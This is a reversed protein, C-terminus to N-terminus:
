GIDYKLPNLCSVERFKWYEKVDEGHPFFFAFVDANSARLKVRIVQRVLKEMDPSGKWEVKAATSDGTFPIHENYSFGELARGETDCIEIGVFGKSADANIYLEGNEVAFPRTMLECEDQGAHLYVFGDPRLMALGISEKSIEEYPIRAFGSHDFPAASYYIKMGDQRYIVTSSPMICTSDWEEKTGLGILKQGQMCRHWCFGDHSYALQIDMTGAMKNFHPDTLYDFTDYMSILGMTYPGYPTMQMGYFQTFCPDLQDPEIALVPKTWHLLDFSEAVWVRRDPCRMRFSLRYAGSVSDRYFGIHCDSEVELVAKNSIPKWHIGDPSAYLYISCHESYPSMALKFRKDPDKEETDLIISPGHTRADNDLVINTGPVVSLEPKIFNIGDSSYAYNLYSYARSDSEGFAPGYYHSSYWTKYLQEEEDYLATGYYHARKFENPLEPKLVPNGSYKQAKGLERRFVQIYEYTRNDFFTFKVNRSVAEM